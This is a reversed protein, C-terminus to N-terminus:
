AAGAVSCWALWLDGEDIGCVKEGCWDPRGCVGIPSASWGVEDGEADLVYRVWALSDCEPCEERRTFYAEGQDASPATWQRAELRWLVDVPRGVDAGVAEGLSHLARALRITTPPRARAFQAPRPPVAVQKDPPLDAIFRHSSTVLDKRLFGAGAHRGTAPKKM